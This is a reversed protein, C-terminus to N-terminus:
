SELPISYEHHENKTFTNNCFKCTYTNRQTEQIKRYFETRNVEKREVLKSNTMEIGFNIGCEHCKRKRIIEISSIALIGPIALGVGVYLLYPEIVFHANISWFLIGFVPAILVLGTILLMAIEKNLPVDLRGYKKMLYRRGMGLVLSTFGNDTPLDVGEQEVIDKLSVTDSETSLPMKTTVFKSIKKFIRDVNDPTFRAHEIGQLFVPIPVGEELLPIIRKRAKKAYGIEQNVTSSSSGYKTLIAIVVPSEDIASTLKDPLSGGYDEDHKAVYCKAGHSELSKKLKNMLDTDNFSYSIFAQITMPYLQM